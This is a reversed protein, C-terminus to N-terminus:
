VNACRVCQANRMLYNIGSEDMVYLEPGPDAVALIHPSGYEDAEPWTYVARGSPAMVAVPDRRTARTYPNLQDLCVADLRDASLPVVPHHWGGLAVSVVRRCSEPLSYVAGGPTGPATSAKTDMEEPALAELPASDLLELYAQRLAGALVADVDIGDTQELGCDTRTHDYGLALRAKALMEAKTLTVKM